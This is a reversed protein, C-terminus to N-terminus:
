LHSSCKVESLLCGEEAGHETEKTLAASNCTLSKHEKDPTSTLCAGPLSPIQDSFSDQKKTQM